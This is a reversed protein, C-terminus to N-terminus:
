NRSRTGRSRGHCSPFELAAPEQSAAVLSIEKLNAAAEPAAASPQAKGPRRWSFLRDTERFNESRYLAHAAPNQEIVELVMMGDNRQKAEELLHRLLQRAVGVRRAASVVGMGALRAVKGIRGIYAFGCLGNANRAFRSHCIDAGQACLFRALAGADM